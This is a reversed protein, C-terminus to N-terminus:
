KDPTLCLLGSSRFLSYLSHFCSLFSFTSLLLFLAIRQSAANSGAYRHRSPSRRSWKATWACQCLMAEYLLTYRLSPSLIPLFLRHLISLLPPSYIMAYSSLYGSFYLSLFPPFLSASLYLSLCLIISLHLFLSRSVFVHLPLPFSFYFCLSFSLDSLFIFFLFLSLSFSVGLCLFLYISIFQSCYYMSLVFSSLFCLLVSFCFLGGLM